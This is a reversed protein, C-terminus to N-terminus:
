WKYIYFGRISEVFEIPHGFFDMQEEKLGFNRFRWRDLIVWGHENEAFVPSVKGLVDGDHFVLSNVKNDMLDVTNFWYLPGCTSCVIASDRFEEGYKEHVEDFRYLYEEVIPNIGGKQTYIGRYTSVPNFTLLLMVTLTVGALWKRLRTRQDRLILYLLYVGFAILPVMWVHMVFGYRPRSYRGFHFSYAYLFIFFALAYFFIVPFKKKVIAVFSGLTAIAFILYFLYVGTNNFWQRPSDGLIIDTWDSSFETTLAINVGGRLYLIFLAGVLAFLGLASLIYVKIQRRIKESNLLLFVFYLFATFYPVIVQQFTSGADLYFAYALPFLVAFVGLFLVSFRMKKRREFIMILWRSLALLILFVILYFLPFIAYERVLRGILLAWPSMLWLIAAILGVRRNIMKGVYYLPIATAASLIIIPLRATLLSQGFFKFMISTTWVIFHTRPFTNYKMFDLQTLEGGSIYVSSGHDVLSMARILSTFEDTYIGIENIEVLRFVLGAFVIAALSLLYPSKWTKKKKEAEEKEKQKRLSGFISDSDRWLVIGALVVSVTLTLKLLAVLEFPTFSHALQFVVLLLVSLAFYDKIEEIRPMVVM